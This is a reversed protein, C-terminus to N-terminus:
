WKMMSEQLDKGSLSVFKKGVLLQFSFKKECGDVAMNVSETAMTILAAGVLYWTTSVRVWRNMM